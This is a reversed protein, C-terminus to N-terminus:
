KGPAAFWLLQLTFKPANEPQRPNGALDLSSVALDPWREHVRTLFQTTAAYSGRGTVLIPVSVYHTSPVKDGPEMQDLYLDCADAMQTLDSLRQNLHSLSELKLSRSAVQRETDELIRRFDGLKTGLASAKADRESLEVEQERKAAHEDLVPQVAMVYMGASLLLCLALAGADIMTLSKDKPKNM